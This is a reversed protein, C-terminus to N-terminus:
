RYVREFEKEDTVGIANPRAYEMMRYYESVNNALPTGTLLIKRPTQVQQLAKFVQNSSNKLMTHAEDIILIQARKIVGSVEDGQQVLNHFTQDSVILLGGMRHWRSIHMKRSDNKIENLNYVVLPDALRHTWKQVEQSWNQITNLPVVLLANRLMPQNSEGDRMAPSNMVTHLISIATFSKGLGMCHALLCGGVTKESGNRSRDFDSFCNRWIFKIGECQHPKLSQVLDGDVKVKRIETDCLFFDSSLTQSHDDAKASSADVIDGGNSIDSRAGLKDSYDMGMDVENIEKGTRQHSSREKPRQKKEVSTAPARSRAVSGRTRRFVHDKRVVMSGSAGGRRSTEREERLEENRDETEKFVAKVKLNLERFVTDEEDLAQQIAKETPKSRTSKWGRGYTAHSEIMYERDDVLEEVDEYTDEHTVIPQSGRRRERNRKDIVKNAAKVYAEMEEEDDDDNDHAFPNSEDGDDQRSPDLPVDPLYNNYVKELDLKFCNDLEDRLSAAMDSLREDHDNLQKLWVSVEEEVAQELANEDEGYKSLLDKRFLIRMKEIGEVTGAEELKELCATKESEVDFLHQLAQEVTRTSQPQEDDDGDSEDKVLLQLKRLCPPPNCLPCKWPADDRQLSQAIDRAKDPTGQAQAICDACWGSNHFPCNTDGDCLFLTGTEDAGGCALCVADEEELDADAYAANLKEACVSCTPVKLLHHVHVAYLSRGNPDNKNYLEVQCRWCFYSDSTDVEMPTTDEMSEYEVTEEGIVANDSASSKSQVKHKKTSSIEPSKRSTQHPSEKKTVDDLPRKRMAESAAKLATARAPSKSLTPRKTTDDHEQTIQPANTVNNASWCTKQPVSKAPVADYYQDDDTSMTDADSKQTNTGNGHDFDIGSPM